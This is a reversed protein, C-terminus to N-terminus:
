NNAASHNTIIGISLNESLIRITKIPWKKEDIGYITILPHLGYRILFTWPQFFKNIYKGIKESSDPLFEEKEFDYFESQEKKVEEEFSKDIYLTLNVKQPKWVLKRVFPTSYLYKMTGELKVDKIYPFVEKLEGTIIKSIEDPLIMEKIDGLYHTEEM